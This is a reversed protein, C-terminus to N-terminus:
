NQIPGRRNAFLRRDKVRITGAQEVNERLQTNNLLDKWKNNIEPNRLENKKVYSIQNKYSNVWSQLSPSISLTNFENEVSFGLIPEANNDASVLIFGKPIINYIFILNEGTEIDTINNSLKIDQFPLNYKILFNKAAIQAEKQSINGCFISLPLLLFVIPLFKKM